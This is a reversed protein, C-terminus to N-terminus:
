CKKVKYVTFILMQKSIWILMAKVSFNEKQNEIDIKSTNELM